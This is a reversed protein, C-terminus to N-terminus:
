YARTKKYYRGMLLNWLLRTNVRTRKKFQRSAFSALHINKRLELTQSRGLLTRAFELFLGFSSKCQAHSRVAKYLIFFAKRFSSRNKLIYMGPVFKRRKFKVIRTAVRPRIKNVLELILSSTTKRFYMKLM